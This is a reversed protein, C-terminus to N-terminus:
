ASRNNLFGQWVLYAASLWVGVAMFFLAKETPCGETTCSLDTYPFLGLPTFLHFFIAGSIIGLALLAGWRRTSPILVLASAILEAGGIVLGGHAAFAGGISGLGIDTMWQGVTSFIYVTVDVPEGTIAGAFKFFLSQIFVFAIFIALVLPLHKMAQGKFDISVNKNPGLLIKPSFSLARREHIGKDIPM